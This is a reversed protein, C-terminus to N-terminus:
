NDKLWGIKRRSEELWGFVQRLVARVTVWGGCYITHASNCVGGGPVFAASNGWLHSAPLCCLQGTVSTVPQPCV